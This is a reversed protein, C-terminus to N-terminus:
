ASLERYVSPTMRVRLGPATCERGASSLLSSSSLGGASVYTMNGTQAEVQAGAWFMWVISKVLALDAALVSWAAVAALAWTVTCAVILKEGDDM